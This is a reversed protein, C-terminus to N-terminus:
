PEEGWFGVLPNPAPVGRSGRPHVPKRVRKRPVPGVPIFDLRGTSSTVLEDIAAAPPAPRGIRIAVPQATDTM